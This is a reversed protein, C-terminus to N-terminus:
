GYGKLLLAVPPNGAIVALARAIASRARLAIEAVSTASVAEDTAVARPRSVRYRSAHTRARGADGGAFVSLVLDALIKVGGFTERVPVSQELCKGFPSTRAM